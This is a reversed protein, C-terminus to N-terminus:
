IKWVGMPPNTSLEAGTTIFEPELKSAGAPQPSPTKLGTGGTVENPLSYRTILLAPLEVASCVVITAVCALVVKVTVM